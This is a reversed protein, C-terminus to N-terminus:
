NSDQESTSESGEPMGMRKEDVTVDLDENVVVKCYADDINLWTIAEIPDMSRIAESVDRLETGDDTLFKPFPLKRTFGAADHFFAIVEPLYLAKFWSPFQRSFSCSTCSYDAWALYRTQCSECIDGEETDHNECIDLEVGVKGSCRPCVGGIMATIDADYLRHAATAVERETRGHLGRPPFEYSMITGSDYPEGVVGSCNTCRLQLTEDTYSFEQDCGCFPCSLDIPRPPLAPDITIGGHKIAQILARGPYRLEYGEGTNRIFHNNLQSVHYHFNGSDEIGIKEQLTTFPLPGTSRALTWLIEMRIENALPKFLDALDTESDFGQDLNIM